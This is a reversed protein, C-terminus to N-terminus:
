TSATAFIVAVAKGSSITTGAFGINHAVFLTEPPKEQPAIIKDVLKSEGTLASEDVMLNEVQVFRCDAPIIDGQHLLIIDGPVLDNDPVDKEQGNRRTKISSILYQKLLQLNIEAHYEQYFGLLTNVSLLTLIIIADTFQSMILYIAVVILFLYVFPSNFQRWLIALWSITHKKTQNLGVEQQRKSVEQTSLGKDLSTKLDACIQEVTKTAYHAFISSKKKNEM